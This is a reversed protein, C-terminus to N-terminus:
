ALALKVNPGFNKEVSQSQIFEWVGRPSFCLSPLFAKDSSLVFLWQPGLLAEAGLAKSSGPAAGQLSDSLEPKPDASPPVNGGGGVPQILFPQM